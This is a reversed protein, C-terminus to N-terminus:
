KRERMLLFNAISVLALVLALMYSMAAATGMRFGRLGENTMAMIATTTSDGPGGHTLLYPQGFLNASALITTTLVFIFV